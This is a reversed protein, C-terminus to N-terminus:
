RLIATITKQVNKAQDNYDKYEKQVPETAM